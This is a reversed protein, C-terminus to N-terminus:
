RTPTHAHEKAVRSSDFGLPPLVNVLSLADLEGAIPKAELEYFYDGERLPQVFTVEAVRLGFPFVGDLGSTVLLDGRQVLPLDPGERQSISRGSRLDFPGGQEDATDYNFGIGTLVRGDRRWLPLGSGSLEGKALLRGERLARVAMCLSSDTLLRVRCQRANVLDVVGIVAAGVVVPSNKAIVPSPFDRNNEEGVNLWLTSNWATPARYIIRAPVSIPANFEEESGVIRARLEAIKEKLQRNELELRQLEERGTVPRKPDRLAGWLPASLSAM